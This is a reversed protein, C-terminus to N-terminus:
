GSLSGLEMPLPFVIKTPHEVAIQTLTQLYRLQLTAANQSMKDAAAVLSDASQQEGQASIIKARRDREAEAQSAMSRQMNDPLKCDKVEVSEVVIGWPETHKELIGKVKAGIADRNSLLEDLSSEGVISRLTTSAILSTARWFDKVYLVAKTADHVKFFVVADVKISVSDLTMVEQASVPVTKLRLDVRKFTDVFPMFYMMGPGEAKPSKLHGLRFVVAREYQDFVKIAYLWTLPIISLLYSWFLLFYRLFCACPDASSVNSIPDYDDEDEIKKKKKELSLLLYM